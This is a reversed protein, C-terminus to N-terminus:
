GGDAEDAARFLMRGLARADDPTVWAFWSDPVRVMTPKAVAPAVEPDDFGCPDSEGLLDVVARALQGALTTSDHHRGVCATLRLLEALSAM